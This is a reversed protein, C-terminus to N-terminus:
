ASDAGPDPPTEGLRRRVFAVVARSRILARRGQSLWAKALFWDPLDWRERLPLRQERAEWGLRFARLECDLPTIPGEQKAWEEAAQWGSM